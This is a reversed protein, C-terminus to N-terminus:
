SGRARRVEELRWAAAERTEKDFRGPFKLVAAELSWELIGLREMEKFGSQMDSSIVLTKILEESKLGRRRYDVRMQEFKTPPYRKARCRAIGEDLFQELEDGNTM